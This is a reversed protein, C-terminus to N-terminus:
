DDPNDYDIEETESNTESNTGTYKLKLLSSSIKDMENYYFDRDLSALQKYAGIKNFHLAIFRGQSELVTFMNEHEEMYSLIGLVAERYRFLMSPGFVRVRFTQNKFLIRTFDYKKEDGRENDVSLKVSWWLNSLANRMLVRSFWHVRIQKILDKKKDLPWRNKVYNFIGESHTLTVWLANDFAQIPKLGPYAEYLAIATEFDSKPNMKSVLDAPAEIQSTILVQTEDIPFDTLSYRELEVGQNVENRLQEVYSRKFIRQYAM